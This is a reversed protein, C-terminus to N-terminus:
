LKVDYCCDQTDQGYLLFHCTRSVCSDMTCLRLGSRHQQWDDGASHINSVSPDFLTVALLQPNRVTVTGCAKVPIHDGHADVLLNEILGPNARGTRVGALEEVYHEVAQQMLRCSSLLAFHAAPLQTHAEYLNCQKVHSVHQEPRKCCATFLCSCVQLAVPPLM